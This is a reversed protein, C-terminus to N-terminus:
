QSLGTYEAVVFIRHTTTFDPWGTILTLMATETPAVYAAAAEDEAATAGILPIPESVETVTFIYNVGDGDALWIEQGPEVEGRALPAFPAAGTAQHGALVIRGQAGLVNGNVPWGVSAEPVVWQTTRVGDVLTEEWGMPVVTASLEVAPIAIAVPAHTSTMVAATVVAAVPTTAPEASTATATPPPPQIPQCAALLAFAAGLLPLTWRTSFLVSRSRPM